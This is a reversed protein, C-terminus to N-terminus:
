SFFTDFMKREINFISLYLKMIPLVRIVCVPLVRAYKTKLCVYRYIYLSLIIIIM